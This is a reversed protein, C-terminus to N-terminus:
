APPERCTENWVRTFALFSFFSELLVVVKDYPGWTAIALLHPNLYKHMVTRDTLVDGLMSVRANGSQAVVAGLTEGAPLAVTWTALAALKGGV